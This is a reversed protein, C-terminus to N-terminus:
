SARVIPTGTRQPQLARAVLTLVEKMQFPKPLVFDVSGQKVTESELEENWGTVLIVPTGRSLEKIARAVQWGSMEAMGLDTIVLTSPEERFYALGEKGGTAQRVSHGQSM